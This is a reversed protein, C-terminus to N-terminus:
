GEVMALMDDIIQLGDNCFRPDDLNVGFPELLKYPTQSGGAALLSM